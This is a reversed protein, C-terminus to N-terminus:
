RQFIWQFTALTEGSAETHWYLGYLLLMLFLLARKTTPEARKLLLPWTLTSYVGTYIGVRGLYASNMATTMLVAHLMSMNMYFKFKPESTDYYRRFLWFFVVPVWVVAIRLPNISNLLYGSGIGTFDFTDSKLFSIADFIKDYLNIGILAAVISLATNRVSIKLRPYFYFFIGIVATVHCMTAIFVTACWLVFKRDKIFGHGAFLVAAALYQRVGNFCGHWVGLFIYLMISLWYLDSNKFITITIMVVTVVAALFLMTGPDDYIRAAIRAILKIAPEDNLALPAEKFFAYSSYYNYYDTGVNYRLGAVIALIATMLVATIVRPKGDELPKGVNSLFSNSVALLLMSTIVTYYVVM